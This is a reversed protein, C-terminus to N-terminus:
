GYSLVGQGGVLELEPEPLGVVLPVPLEVEAVVDEFGLAAFKFMPKLQVTKSPSALMTDDKVM